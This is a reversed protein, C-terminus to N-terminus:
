NEVFFDLRYLVFIDMSLAVSCHLFVGLWISNQRLSLVGLIVGAFIAGVNELFPKGFHIMVYPFIMLAISFYGLKKKTGHIMFGRFFFELAFFQLFYSLEWIFFKPFLSDDVPKYFPYQLQFSNLNSVLFLLPTMFAFFCVFIKIEVKDFKFKLGYDFISDKFLIKILILPTILYFFLRMLAWFVLRFLIPDNLYYSNNILGDSISNLSILKLFSILSRLDGLYECIM